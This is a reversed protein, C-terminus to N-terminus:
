AKALMGELTERSRQLAHIARTQFGQREGRGSM